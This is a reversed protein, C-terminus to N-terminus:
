KKTINLFSTNGSILRKKSVKHETISVSDEAKVDSVQLSDSSKSKPEEIYAARVPQEVGIVSKQKNNIPSSLLIEELAMLDDDFILMKKISDKIFSSVSKQDGLVSLIGAKNAADKLIKYSEKNVRFTMLVKDKTNEIQMKYDNPLKITRPIEKGIAASLALIRALQGPSKEKELMLKHWYMVEPDSKRSIHTAVIHTQRSDLKIM